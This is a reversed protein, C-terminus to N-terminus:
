RSAPSDEHTKSEKTNSTKERTESRDRHVGAVTEPVAAGAPGLLARASTWQQGVLAALPLADALTEMAALQHQPRLHAYLMTTDIRKHGVADSVKKLAVELELMMTVATHRLTHFTVGQAHARGYRLNPRLTGARDVAGRMAGELSKVPKGQYTIVRTRGPHRERAARLIAQLQLPVACVLPGTDGDTKHDDVTIFRYDASIHVDFDLALINAERLKPALLGIAVALRLHYSGMAIIAVVDEVELVAKRGRKPDRWMGATPNSVIGTQKRYAPNMALQFMQTLWSRYQNKTQSSWKITRPKIHKLRGTRPREKKPLELWAEWKLLWSPENVPDLLCLDHYPRGPDGMEADSAPRRGWFRLASRTLDKIRDPRKVKKKADAFYIEAWDQFSPSVIPKPVAVGAATQEVERKLNEEFREAARRDHQHTSGAYRVHRHEFKYWWFSSEKRKYLSV